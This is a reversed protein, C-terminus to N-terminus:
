RSRCQYRGGVGFYPDAELWVHEERETCARRKILDTGDRVIVNVPFNPSLRVDSWHTESNCDQDPRRTCWKLTIPQNCTNEYIYGGAVERGSLCTDADFSESAQPQPGEDYVKVGYNCRSGCVSMAVTVKHVGTETAQFVVVPNDDPELDMGMDTNGGAWVGLDLNSCGEDCAGIVVYTHGSVANFIHEAGTDNPLVGRSYSIVSLGEFVDSEMQAFLYDVLAARTQKDPVGVPMTTGPVNKTPDALFVDLEQRTWAKGAAGAKILAQSYNYGPVGAAKRGLVRFLGPGARGLGPGHV